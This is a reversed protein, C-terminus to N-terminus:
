RITVNSYFFSHTLKSFQARKGSLHYLKPGVKQFLNRWYRIINKHNFDTPILEPLKHKQNALRADIYGISDHVELECPSAKVALKRESVREVGDVSNSSEVIISEGGVGVVLSLDLDLSSQDAIRDLYFEKTSHNEIEMIQGKYTFKIIM